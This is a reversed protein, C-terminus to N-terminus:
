LVNEKCHQSPVRAQRLAVLQATIYRHHKMFGFRVAIGPHARRLKRLTDRHRIGLFTMAESPRLYEPMTEM